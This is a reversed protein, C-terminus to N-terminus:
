RETVALVRSSGAAYPYDSEPESVVRFQYVAPGAFRFRYSAHYRGNRDTRVVKFQIWAGGPSRAELVLQKGAGPIPRGLVRGSFRIGRGVASTRPEVDLAIGARVSLVLARSAVPAPDGIRVRYSFRLTRSCVGRALRLTFSGDPGTRVESLAVAHGGGAPRSEVDIQAASIPGGGAATLRGLAIQPRGYASTLRVGRAHRWRVTLTAASTAGNGNPPGPVGPPPPNYVSVMRDLVAAANGAADIVSVLLHHQGNALRTTDLGVHAGVAAPCPQVYLFAAVGDTTQGVDRCRGGAEDPVTRQVVQGDVAFLAEYVGAGSDTANFSVDSMGTVTPATALEGGVNAVTPGARQELTLDAAYLYIVAAYGNPDGKGQPCPYGAVGGCTATMSLSAGLSSAPVTVANAAALPEGVSGKAVCEGLFSCQDFYPKGGNGAFTFQFSANPAAGGVVDGARWLTAGALMDGAPLGLTWESFDSDATRSAEDGLAAVLAGNPQGCTDLAFSAAGSVSGVWGDVPASGGDPTRCSYVHFRGAHSLPPSAALVGLVLLSAVACSIPRSSKPAPIRLM